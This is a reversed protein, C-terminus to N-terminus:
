AIELVHTEREAAGGNELHFRRLLNQAAKMRYAASARMDTIPAFDEALAEAAKGIAPEDFSGGVLAAEAKMARKPTAAMGGYAIRAQRIRGGDLRVLFAGMVASIDQDFRKSV